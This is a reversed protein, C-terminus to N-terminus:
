CIFKVRNYRLMWEKPFRCIRQDISHPSLRLCECEEEKERLILYVEDRMTVRGLNYVFTNYFCFITGAAIKM